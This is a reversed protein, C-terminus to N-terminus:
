LNSGSLTIKIEVNKSGNKCVIITNETFRLLRWNDLGNYVSGTEIQYIDNGGPFHIKEFLNSHGHGVFMAKINKHGNLIKLFGESCQKAERWNVPGGKKFFIGDNNIDGIPFYIHFFLVVPDDGANAVRENLWDCQLQDFKKPEYGNDLFIFHYKTKGVPLIKEYYTGNYFCPINRIWAARAEGAVVQSTAIYISDQDIVTYRTIDHNGLTLFLPVPCENVAQGFQKVQGGLLGKNTNESEFFEVLDGTIIVANANTKAPVTQFFLKLSDNHNDYKILTDFDNHNFKRIKAIVPSVEMFNFILHCDSTHLINLTDQAQIYTNVILNCIIAIAYFSFKKLKKM